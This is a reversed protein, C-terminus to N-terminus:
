LNITHTTVMCELTVQNTMHVPLQIKIMSGIVIWLSKKAISLDLEMVLVIRYSTGQPKISTTLQGTPRQVPLVQSQNKSDKIRKFPLYDAILISQYESSEM